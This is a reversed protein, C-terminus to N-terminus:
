CRYCAASWVRSCVLLLFPDFHHFALNGQCSCAMIQISWGRNCLFTKQHWNSWKSTESCFVLLKTCYFVAFQKLIASVIWTHFFFHTSIWTHFGHFCRVCLHAMKFFLLFVATLAASGKIIKFFLHTFHKSANWFTM